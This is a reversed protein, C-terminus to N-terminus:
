RSLYASGSLPQVSRSGPRQDAGYQHTSAPMALMSIKSAATSELRPALKKPIGVSRIGATRAAKVYGVLLEAHAHDAGAVGVRGLPGAARGPMAWALGSNLENVATAPASKPGAASATISEHGYPRRCSTM